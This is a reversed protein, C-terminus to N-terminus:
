ERGGSSEFAYQPQFTGGACRLNVEWSCIIVNMARSIKGWGQELNGPISRFHPLSGISNPLMRCPNSKIM